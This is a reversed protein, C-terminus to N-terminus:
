REDEREREKEGEREAGPTHRCSSPLFVNSLSFSSHCFSTHLTNSLASLRSFHSAVGRCIVSLHIQPHFRGASDEPSFSIIVLSSLTPHPHHHPSCHLTFTPPYSHNLPCDCVLFSSLLPFSVTSYLKNIFKIYFWFELLLETTEISLIVTHPKSQSPFFFGPYIM